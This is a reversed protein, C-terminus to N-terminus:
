AALFQNTRRPRPRVPERSWHVNAMALFEEEDTKLALVQGVWMDGSPLNRGPNRPHACVRMTVEGDADLQEVNGEYGSQVIRYKGGASGTIEIVGAVDYIEYEEPTLV